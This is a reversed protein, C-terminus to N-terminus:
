RIIKSEIGKELKDSTFNDTPFAYVGSPWVDRQSCMPMYNDSLIAV